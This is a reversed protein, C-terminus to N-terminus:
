IEIIINKIKILEFQNELRSSNKQYSRIEKEKIDETKFM